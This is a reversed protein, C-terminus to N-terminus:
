QAGGKQLALLEERCRYCRGCGSGINLSGKCYTGQGLPPADLLAKILGRVVTPTAKPEPSASWQRELSKWEDSQRVDIDFAMRMFRAAAENAAQHGLGEDKAAMAVNCHWPWAYSSDSQVAAKLVELAATTSTIAVAKEAAHLVTGPAVILLGFPDNGVDRADRRVGTFPNFLWAVLGHYIRYQRAESPYVDALGDKPDFKLLAPVQEPVDKAAADGAHGSGGCAKCDLHATDEPQSGDNRFIRLEASQSVADVALHGHRAFPVLASLVEAAEHMARGALVESAGVLANACEERQQRDLIRGFAEALRPMMPIHSTGPEQWAQAALQLAQPSAPPWEADVVNADADGAPAAPPTAAGSLLRGAEDAAMIGQEHSVYILTLKYIGNPMKEQVMSRFGGLMTRGPAVAAPAARLVAAKVEEYGLLNKVLGAVKGDVLLLADGDHNRSFAYPAPGRPTAMGDMDPDRRYPQAEDESTELATDAGLLAREVVPNSESPFPWRAEAKSKSTMQSVAAGAGQEEAKEAGNPMEAKNPSETNRSM